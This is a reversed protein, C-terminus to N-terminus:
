RRCCGSGSAWLGLEPSVLPGARAPGRAKPWDLAPWRPTTGPFRALCQQGQCSERVASATTLSVVWGWRYSDCNWCNV